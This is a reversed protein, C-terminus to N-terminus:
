KQPLLTGQVKKGGIQFIYIVPQKHGIIMPVTITQPVGARFQTQEIIGLREGLLNYFELSGTGSVSTTINFYVSSTSLYPNPYVTVELKAPVPLPVVCATYSEASSYSGTFNSGGSGSGGFVLGGTQNNPTGTSHGGIPVGDGVNVSGVEANSRFLM